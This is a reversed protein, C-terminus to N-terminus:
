FFCHLFSRVSFHKLLSNHIKDSQLPEQCKEAPQVPVVGVSAVSGLAAVSDSNFWEETLPRVQVRSMAPSSLHIESTEKVQVAGASRLLPSTSVGSLEWKDRGETSLMGASSPSIRWNKQSRSVSQPNIWRRWPGASGKIAREVKRERVQHRSARFQEQLAHRSEWRHAWLVCTPAAYDQRIFSDDNYKKVNRSSWSRVRGNM